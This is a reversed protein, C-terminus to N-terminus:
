EEKNEETAEEVNEVTEEVTEEASEITEETEEVTEEITEEAEEVTEEVMEEVAEEATEEVTEEATEEVNEEYVTGNLKYRKRPKKRRKIWLIIGIISGVLALLVFTFAAVTGADIKTKEDDESTEVSEEASVEESIEESADSAETSEESVDVESSEDPEIPAEEKALLSIKTIAAYDEVINAKYDSKSFIMAIESELAQAEEYTLAREELAATAKGIAELASAETEDDIGNEFSKLKGIKEKSGELIAKQSDQANSSPLAARNPIVSKNSLNQLIYADFDSLVFGDAGIERAGIIEEGIIKRSVPAATDLGVFCYKTKGTYASVIASKNTVLKEGYALTPLADHESEDGSFLSLCVGDIIGDDLWKTYDQMYFYDVSDRAAVATIYVDSRTERIVYSIEEAMASVLGKRFEVWESWYKNEFLESKIKAAESSTVKYEECFKELTADDYGIDGSESFRPYRLYDLMIGDVDYRKVISEVYGLYYEKFGESAPSYFKKSATDDSGAPSSIWEPAAAAAYANFYVDLCLDIEIGNAKCEKIFEGIVDFDGFKEDRKFKGEPIVACTGYGNSVRLILANLNEDILAKVTAKVEDASTEAPVHLAGRFESIKENKLSVKINDLKYMLEAADAYSIKKNKLLAEAEEFLADEGTSVSFPEKANAAEDLLITLGRAIHKENFEFTAANENVTLNGGVIAHSVLFKMDGDTAASVAIENEEPKLNSGRAKIMGSEDAIVTYLYQPTGEVGEAEIIFENEEGRVKVSETFYPTYADKESTFFAKRTYADYYVFKGVRANSKLWEASEGTGSIIFSGEPVELDEGEGAAVTKTIKGDSGVVVDFGWKSQKTSKVDKYIVASNALRTINEGDIFIYKDEDASAFCVFIPLIILIAAIVSIIKKTM